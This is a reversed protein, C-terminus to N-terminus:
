LEGNQRTGKGKFTHVNTRPMRNFGGFNQRNGFKTSCGNTGSISHDCGAYVDVSDGVAMGPIQLQMTLTAVSSIGPSADTQDHITMREGTPTHVLEGGVAWAGNRDTTVLDVRVDRGSVYLVTTTVVHAVGGPSSGVRSVKCSDDYLVHPCMRGSSINPLVRLATETFRSPVRFKAVRGDISMSTIRGTWITETENSTLQRRYATVTIVRPPIGQLLYRQVLAHTVPLSLVLEKPSGIGSQRIESRAVPIATYIQSGVLLDRNASAIYYTTTAPDGIAIDYFEDPKNDEASAEDDYFSM